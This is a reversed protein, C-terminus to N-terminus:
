CLPYPSGTKENFIKIPNFHYKYCGKVIMDGINTMNLEPMKFIVSFYFALILIPPLFLFYIYFPVTRNITMEPKKM